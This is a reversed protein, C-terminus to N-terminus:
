PPKSTIDYFVRNVGRVENIIRFMVVDLVYYPNEFAKATMFDLTNVARLCIAYDYTREDVMVGVSKLNTLAAFYQSIKEIEDAENKRLLGHDIFVCNM